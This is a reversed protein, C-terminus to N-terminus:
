QTSTVHFAAPGIMILPAKKGYVFITLIVIFRDKNWIFSSSVDSEHIARIPMCQYFVAVEDKNCLEEIFYTALLLQMEKRVSSLDTASIFFEAGLMRNRTLQYRKLFNQFLNTSAKFTILAERDNFILASDHEACLLKDRIKFEKLCVLDERSPEQYGMYRM